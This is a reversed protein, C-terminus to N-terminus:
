KLMARNRIATWSCADMLAALSPYVTLRRVTIAPAQETAANEIVVVPVPRLSWHLSGIRVPVGLRSQLEASARAALEENSPLLWLLVAAAAALLLLLAGAAMMWKSRRKM